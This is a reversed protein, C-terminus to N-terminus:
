DSSSYHSEHSSHSEHSEHSAHSEHSTHWDSDDNLSSSQSFLQNAHVLYFPESKSSNINDNTVALANNYNLGLIALLGLVFLYIRYGLRKM